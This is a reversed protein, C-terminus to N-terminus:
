ERIKLTGRTVGLQNEVSLQQWVEQGSIDGRLLADYTALTERVTDADEDVFAIRFVQVGADRLRDLYEAGTQARQNYLTNRCGADAQLLHEAGYRDRMKVEHKECPRGCDTYDKGETMFACFVCHEMHFMPMHQHLIVEVRGADTAVLMAEMQAVSLDQSATVRECGLDFLHQVSLANACNFSFDARLRLGAAGFVELHAANRALIGDAQGREVCMRAQKLIAAEGDKYIRPPALFLEVPDSVQARFREALEGAQRFDRPNEPDFVLQRAGWALAAQAQALTRVEPLLQLAPTGGGASSVGEGAAPSPVGARCIAGANVAWRPGEARLAMLRQAVDRRLANLQSVPLFCDGRLQVDMDGLVFPTDGLRGLQARLKDADLARGTAAQLVDASEGEVVHGAADRLQVRLPEGVGGMVRAAVFQRSGVALQKSFSEWRADKTKFVAQGEFVRESDLVREGFRVYLAGTEAEVDVTHVFGGAERETDEGQLAFVVGDGAKLGHGAAPELWVSRADHIGSVTGVTVGRKKGFRGHCLKQNDIGGLWGTHFGRSFAMNLNYDEESRIQAAAAQADALSGGTDFVAACADVARRYARSTVAVYASGKLRGEIKLSHIGAQMLDPVVAVGALDQPSLLHARGDLDFPQGDVLLEYPLRCSQACQGRNASRGGFSESTLCQGSYAVCLAGHVFVELPLRGEPTADMQQQILGMEEVSNERALVALEAGLARAFRVGHSSTITMQTSAHIPM